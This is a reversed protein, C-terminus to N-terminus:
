PPEQPRGNVLRPQTFRLRKGLPNDQPWFRKAATQDLVVVFPAHEDDSPQLMRGRILPAAITQFYNPTVLVLSASNATENEAQDETRFGGAGLRTKIPVASTLAASTVGSLQQLRQEVSRIFLARQQQTTYPDAK